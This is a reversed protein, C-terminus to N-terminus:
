DVIPLQNILNYVLERQHNKGSLRIINLSANTLEDRVEIYKEYHGKEYLSKAGWLHYMESGIENKLNKLPKNYNYHRLIDPFALVDLISYSTVKYGNENEYYEMAALLWQEMTTQAGTSHIFFMDDDSVDMNGDNDIVFQFYVDVYKKLFNLDTFILLCCNIPFSQNFANRLGDDWVWNNNSQIRHPYPYSSPSERHLYTFSYGMYNDYKGHWVLDTDIMIFPTTLHKMVWLKPSAWFVNSIRNSPYLDLVETNVYDYISDIGVAKYLNLTYTDTYLHFKCSPNNVRFTEVGIYQTLIVLPNLPKGKPQIFAHVAIM